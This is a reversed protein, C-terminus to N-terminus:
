KEKPRLFPNSDVVTFRVMLIQTMSTKSFISFADVRVRLNSIQRIESHKHTLCRIKQDSIWINQVVKYFKLVTRDDIKNHTM